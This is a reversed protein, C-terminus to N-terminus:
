LLLNIKARAHKVVNRFLHTWCTQHKAEPFAELCADRIGTLGDIIFLLVEQLSRRNLDLLMDRYNSASEPPIIAYDFVEQEGDINICLIVHLAEKAVSDRRVNLYTADYYVAVYKGSIVRNHFGNLRIKFQKQSIPFRRLVTIIAM